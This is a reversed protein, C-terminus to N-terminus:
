GSVAKEQKGWGGVLGNVRREAVSADQPRPASAGPSGFVIPVLATRRPASVGGCTVPLCVPLRTLYVTRAGDAPRDGGVSKM